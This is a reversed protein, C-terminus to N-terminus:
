GIGARFIEKLEALRLHRAIPQPNHSIWDALAPTFNVLAALDVPYHHPDAGLWQGQRGVLAKDWDKRQAIDPGPSFSPWPQFLIPLHRPFLAVMEALFERSDTCNFPLWLPLLASRTPATANIQAFGDVMVAQPEMGLRRYLHQWAFFALRSFDHVHSGNISRIKMGYHHAFEHVAEGFRPLTGWESESQSNWVKPLRWGGRHQSGVEELWANLFVRGHLYDHDKLGGLGGVQFTHRDGVTYQGWSQTNNLLILTGGPLLRRQIFDIYSHPIGLLKMRIHNVQGVLFRDHVPDYHNVVHLNPNNELIPTALEQGRRQYNFIDDPDGPSRFSALFTHSLFPVGLAASLHAAAGSPAGLIIAEFQRDKPLFEYQAVNWAALHDAYLTRARRPDMGSRGSAWSVGQRIWSEPFQHTLRVAWALRRLHPLPHFLDGRLAAAASLVTAGSSTEGGERYYTIAGQRGM